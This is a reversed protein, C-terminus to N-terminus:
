DAFKKGFKKVNRLITNIDQQPLDLAKVEDLTKELLAGVTTIKMKHLDRILDPELNLRSLSSNVRIGRTKKPGRKKGAQKAKKRAVARKLPERRKMREQKGAYNGALEEFAAPDREKISAAISCCVGPTFPGCGAEHTNLSSNTKKM